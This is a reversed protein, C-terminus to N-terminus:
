PKMLSEILRVSEPSDWERSGSFIYRPKGDRDLLFSTPINQVNWRDYLTEKPDFVVTFDYGWRKLFGEVSNEKEGMNIAILAFPRGKMKTQLKQLSPLEGVCPSCWTTWLNVLVVKGKLQDLQISAGNAGKLGGLDLDPGNYPVPSAQFETERQEDGAPAKHCGPLLLSPTLSLLIWLPLAQLRVGRRPIHHQRNISHILKRIDM